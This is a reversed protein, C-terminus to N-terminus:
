HLNKLQFLSYACEISKCQITPKHINHLGSWLIEVYLGTVTEHSHRECVVVIVGQDYRRGLSDAFIQTDFTMYACSPSGQPPSAVGIM